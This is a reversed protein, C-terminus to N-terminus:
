LGMATLEAEAEESARRRASVTRPAPTPQSPVLVSEAFAQVAAETTMWFSGRRTARLRVYSGDAMRIGKQAWRIATSKHVSGLRARVAKTIPLLEDPPPAPLDNVSPM